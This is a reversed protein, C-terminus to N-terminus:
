VFSILRCSSILIFMLVTVTHNLRELEFEGGDLQQSIPFNFPEIKEELSGPLYGQQEGEGRTERVCVMKSCNGKELVHYLGMKTCLFTKGSGFTGLIAVIGFNMLADLACRQLSNKGKVFKSPPLKLSVFGNGNFRMEKTTGDDTNNIIVYENMIWDSPHRLFPEKVGTGDGSTAFAAYLYACM